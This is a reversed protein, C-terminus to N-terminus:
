TSEPPIPTAATSSSRRSAGGPLHPNAYFYVATPDLSILRDNGGERTWPIGTFNASFEAAGVRYYSITTAGGLQPGPSVSKEGPTAPRPSEQAAAIGALLSPLWPSGSASPRGLM